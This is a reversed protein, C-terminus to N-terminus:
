TIFELSEHPGQDNEGSLIIKGKHVVAQGKFAGPQILVKYNGEMPIIQRGTRLDYVQEGSRIYEPSFGELDLEFNRGMLAAALTFDGSKVAARVRSSSVPETGNILPEVVEAPIGKKDYMIRVAEADTDQQYGCRFNSGICLFVIEACGNLLDFFEKGKLRSFDRSFDILVAQEVGMQELAALKQRPSFIDGEYSGPSITGKPHIRFTFVTPNPGRKVIRKILERHGLHLGDFVGITLAIKERSADKLFLSWDIVRLSM